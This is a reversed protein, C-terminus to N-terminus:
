AKLRVFAREFTFWSVSGVAVSAPLAVAFFLLPACLLAHATRSFADQAAHVTFWPELAPAELGGPTLQRM